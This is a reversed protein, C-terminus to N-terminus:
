TDVEDFGGARDVWEAPELSYAMASIVHEPASPLRISVRGILSVVDHLLTGRAGQHPGEVVVVETGRPIRPM